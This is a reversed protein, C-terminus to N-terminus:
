GIVSSGALEDELKQALHARLKAINPRVDALKSRLEARIEGRLGVQVRKAGFDRGVQV